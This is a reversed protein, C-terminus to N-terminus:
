GSVFTTMGESFASEERVVDLAHTVAPLSVPVEDVNGVVVLTTISGVVAELSGRSVENLCQVREHTHESVCSGVLACGVVLLNGCSEGVWSILKGEGEAKHDVVNTVDVLWKM